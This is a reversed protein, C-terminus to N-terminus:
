INLNLVGCFGYGLLLFMYIIFLLTTIFEHDYYRLHCNYHSIYELEINYQLNSIIIIEFIRISHAMCSIREQISIVFTHVFM